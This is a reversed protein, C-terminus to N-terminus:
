LITYNNNPGAQVELNGQGTFTVSADGNITDSGQALAIVNNANVSKAINFIQGTGSTSNYAIACVPLTINKHGSTTDVLLTGDAVSMTTDISVSRIPSNGSGSPGPPGQTGITAVQITRDNIVKVKTQTINAIVQTM